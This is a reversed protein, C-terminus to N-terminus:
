ILNQLQLDEQQMTQTLAVLNNNPKLYQNLHLGQNELLTCIVPAIFHIICGMETQRKDAIRNSNRIKLKTFIEVLKLAELLDPCNEATLLLPVLKVKLM